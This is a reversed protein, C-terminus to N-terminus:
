EYDFSVLKLERRRSKKISLKAGELVTGRSNEEFFSRIVEPNIETFEGICLEVKTIKSAKKEKALNILDSFLAKIFHLEHM